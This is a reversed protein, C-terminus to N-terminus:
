LSDGKQTSILFPAPKQGLHARSQPSVPIGHENRLTYVQSGVKVIRALFVQRDKFTKMEGTVEVRAGAAVHLAGKGILGWRGLSTDV